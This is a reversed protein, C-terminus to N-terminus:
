RKRRRCKKTKKSIIRYKRKSNKSRKNSRIGGSMCGWKPWGAKQGAKQGVLSDYESNAKLTAGVKISNIINGAVSTNGIGTDKFPIHIPPVLITAPATATASAPANDLLSSGGKFQRKSKGGIIILAPTLTVRKIKKNKKSGGFKARNQAEANSAAIANSNGYITGDGNLPPPKIEQLPQIFSAM